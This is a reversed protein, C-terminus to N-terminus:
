SRTIGRILNVVTEWIISLDLWWGQNEVYEIDYKIWEQFDLGKVRTRRVQWLGTIGPRVSLRADRWPPCYQNEKQPSPRPGVVSMDGVLVNLFQPLEDINYRRLYHGVVTLRPDEDMFFQPGDAQNSAALNAKIQEADKRMSRFKICPFEKGGMTERQHVFFFPRGDELWIALMVLPYIPLTLLLAFVAFAVDFGRKSLRALSSVQRPHVVRALVDTPEIEAWVLREVAPRAAPADWLVTPGVVSGAKELKRGAGVWVPGILKTEGHLKAEEDIWGSGSKKVRRVTSDPRQWVQVLKRVFHMVDEDSGRDYLSGNLSVTARYNRAVSQKYLRWAARASTAGQWARALMRDRTLAVRAQLVNLNGYQREFRVFRRREDTIVRESYGRERDDHLRVIVIDPEDWFMKEVLRGLKFMALSRGEMLLFMEAGDVIESEEGQRVVQVGRAAWFRDHLQTPTLGWVTPQEGREQLPSTEGGEELARVFGASAPVREFETAAVSM